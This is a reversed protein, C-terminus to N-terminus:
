AAQQAIVFVAWDWDIPRSDLQPPLTEASADPLAHPDGSPHSPHHPVPIDDATRVTLTRDPSLVLQFGQAHILTHHRSCVLVLNDLDTGGGHSWFLVHHAHLHTVRSCGPFRCREGDIDGLLRRLPLPVERSTRGADFATRDLPVLPGEPCSLTGPPLLEGSRTRAWGSLPDVGVRLREKVALPKLGPADLAATALRVLAHTLTIPQEAARQEALQRARETNRRTVQQCDRHWQQLAQQEADTVASWDRVAPEEPQLEKLPPSAEASADAEGDAAEAAAREAHIQSLVRELGALVVESVQEPVVFSLHVMGDDSRRVRPRTQWAALEPDAADREPRTARNVARVLRELQEGTCSRAYVLWAAEDLVESVRTIARVQTWSLRGAQFAETILPLERLRKAVRVRERAAVLGLGLRWSLWHACSLLGAAAWADRADLEGILGILHAEGAAVRGAWTTIEDALQDDTLDSLAAAM